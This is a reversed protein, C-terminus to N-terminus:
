LCSKIHIFKTIFRLTFIVCMTKTRWFSRVKKRMLLLLNLLIKIMKFTRMFIQSKFIMLYFIMQKLLQKTLSLIKCIFKNMKRLLNNTSKKMYSNTNTLVQYSSIRYSLLCTYNLTTNYAKFISCLGSTINKMLQCTMKRMVKYSTNILLM